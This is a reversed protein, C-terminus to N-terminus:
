DPIDSLRHNVRNCIDTVLLCQFCFSSLPLNEWSITHNLISMCSSFSLKGALKRLKRLSPILEDLQLLRFGEQLKERRNAAILSEFLSSLNELTLHILRQLQLTEEAAMDDLLLMDKAIRFFVSDLVMCMSRKFTSPLLFPEWIIHVKELNFVVQDIAFKASEFQQMQHTNQFGDAGDIAEKLNVCVLQIQRQLIEESMQHFRPAMDVFVAHEKISSPFDSRYEFALGLIEQSLYLCDNHVLVAVQNISDLQKELKVPVIAEYLLLADRAAHYFEMAVRPSSLCVVQLTQHVLEMLQSAAKSVLCREPLFLLDVDHESSNEAIGRAKSSTGKRTYDPPLVFDCLLLLNRAKALIENKKRFAFHVEVNQTFNSLKEDNSDSASIFNMEKLVTEFESTLKIIKQFEVLKSADDPVAKSLFNSIVLESIRPWTLRGFCRMWRDNQFCISKYIFNIVQILGSYLTAGDIKEAEDLAQISTMPKQKGNFDKSDSSPILKLTAEATQKTDQNLEELFTYPCRNSLAPTVVYKVMLDAVKAIGYDFVGVVDMAKVVTHLEVLDMGSASLQFKVRMRSTEPEFQVANEMLRVLVKQIEDFCEIWENRLLGFVLPEREEVMEERILLAKKLDRVAEAADILRGIKLDERVSRLRGRLNEITQVLVLLEKKEKLEIRKSRIEAVTDRIEVDIPHDSILRLVNSVDTYIDETRSVSESCRSFIESFEKHHSLIYDRVKEKIHISRVQLRDILLRLDPASLPSSEEFDQTSLLERVDISGFLVDMSTM